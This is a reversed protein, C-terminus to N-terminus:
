PQMKDADAARERLRARTERMFWSHDSLDPSSSLQKPLSQVLHNCDKRAEYELISSGTGNASPPPEDVATWDSSLPLCSLSASSGLEHCRATASPSASAM